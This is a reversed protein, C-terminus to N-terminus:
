QVMGGCWGQVMGAGGQGVILDHCLKVSPAHVGWTDIQVVSAVYEVALSVDKVVSAM